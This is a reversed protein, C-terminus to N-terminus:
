SRTKLAKGEARALLTWQPTRLLELLAYDQFKKEPPSNEVANKKFLFSQTRVIRKNEELTQGLIFIKEDIAATKIYRVTMEATLAGGAVLWATRTMAEDLLTAIIGGHVWGKWGQYIKAPTFEAFTRNGEVKWDIQLGRTNLKGCAFCHFDDELVIKM